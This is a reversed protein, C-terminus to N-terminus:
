RREEIMVTNFSKPSLLKDHLTCANQVIFTFLYYFVVRYITQDGEADRSVSTNSDTWDRATESLPKRPELM